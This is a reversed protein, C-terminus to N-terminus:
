LRATPDPFREHRSRVLYLVALYYSWPGLGAILGACVPALVSRHRFPERAYVNSLHVEVVPFSVAAIADRLAYSTHTLAGANLVAGEVGETEARHLRDILAGEHNSQFWDLEHEPFAARLWGELEALSRTGYWHPERRGLLNLNPGNLVLIKM